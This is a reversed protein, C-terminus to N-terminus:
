ESEVGRKARIMITEEEGEKEGELEEEVKKGGM